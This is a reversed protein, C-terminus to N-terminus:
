SSQVVGEYVSLYNRVMATLTFNKIFRARNLTGVKQYLEMGIGDIFSALENPTRVFLPYDEGLAEVNGGVPTAFVPRSLAMAELLALDFVAVHPAHIVAESRAVWRLVEKKPLAGLFAVRSGLRFRDVLGQLYASWPTFEGIVVWRWPRRVLALGEIIWDLGKEPVHQAVTVFLGKEFTGMFETEWTDVPDEIGNYVISLRERSIHWGTYEEFLRVAGQSPFVIRDSRWILNEYTREIAKRLVELKLLDRIQELERLLSGKSHETWVLKYNDSLRGILDNGKWHVGHIHLVDARPATNLMSRVRREAFYADVVAMVSFLPRQIHRSPMSTVINKLIGRWNTGGEKQFLDRAVFELESLERVERVFGKDFDAFYVDLLQDSVSLLGKLLDYAVRNPGGSSSRLPGWTAIIVSLSM